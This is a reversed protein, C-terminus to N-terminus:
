YGASSTTM